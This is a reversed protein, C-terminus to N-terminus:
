ASRSGVMKERGPGSIQNLEANNHDRIELRDPYAAYENLIENPMNIVCRETFVNHSSPAETNILMHIDVGCKWGQTGVM